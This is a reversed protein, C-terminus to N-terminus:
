AHGRSRERVSDALSRAADALLILAEALGDDDAEALAASSAALAAGLRARHDVAPSEPGGDRGPESEAETGTDGAAIFRELDSERVRVRRAGVRVARM